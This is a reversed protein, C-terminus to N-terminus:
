GNAPGGETVEGRHKAIGPCMLGLPGATAAGAGDGSAPAQSWGVMPLATAGEAPLWVERVQEKRGVGQEINRCVWDVRRRAM